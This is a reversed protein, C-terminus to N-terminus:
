DEMKIRDQFAEDLTLSPELRQMGYRAVCAFAPLALSRTPRPETRAADRCEGGVNASLYEESRTVLGARV